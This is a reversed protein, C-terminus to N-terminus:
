KEFCSFTTGCAIVVSSECQGHLAFSNYKVSSVIQSKLLNLFILLVLRSSSCFVPFQTNKPRLRVRKWPFAKAVEHLMQTSPRVKRTESCLPRVIQCAVCKWCRSLKNEPASCRRCLRMSSFLHLKHGGFFIVWQGRGLPISYMWCKTLSVTSAEFSNWPGGSTFLQTAVMM